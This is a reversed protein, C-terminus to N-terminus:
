NSETMARLMEPAVDRMIIELVRQLLLEYHMDPWGCQAVLMHYLAPDTFAWLIDVLIKEQGPNLACSRIKLVERLGGLIHARRNEDAERMLQSLEPYVVEFGGLSNLVSISKKGHRSLIAAIEKAMEALSDKSIISQYSAEKHISQMSRKLLHILIGQKSHFIAYVTQPAVGALAAIAGITTHEYGNDTILSEAADAIRDRTEEARKRRVVSNYSRSAKNGM